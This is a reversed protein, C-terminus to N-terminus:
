ADIDDFISREMAKPHDTEWDNPEYDVPDKWKRSTEEIWRDVSAIENSILEVAVEDESFCDLLANLYDTTPQMHEEPSDNSDSDFSSIGKDSVSELDPLVETRVQTELTAIEQTTLLNRIMENNLASGDLGQITYNVVTKVFQMRHIEPLLGFEYLRAALHTESAFALYLGPRSVTELVNPNMDVYFELFERSCRRALFGLLAMQKMTSTWGSERRIDAQLEGLNAMLDPFLAKPLVVANELGVDGCTVRQIIQEPAAGALYINLLESNEVLLQAYADGITPHRFQWVYEGNNLTNEILSGRLAELALGIGRPDSGLRDLAQRESSEFKVPSLLRGSRMYILALAAKSDVDLGEIVETLFQNQRELFLDLSRKDIALRQTFIPNSLRRATEPTFHDNLAVDELFPKIKSRFAPPQPGLKMHNYLIRRREETTLSQVDIVVQSENFLPFASFKLEKRARRYIYDRSTMVIRAGRNLMASLRPLHHNWSQVLAGDYQTVGFADDLWYFQSPENPNWHEAVAKPDDLKLLSARWQDLATMALLSAITTKGAAPAGTLLVFRHNSLAEAARSYADTIVVKSLDERMSEIIAQAQVYAREDLIQGLDGLGYIRPFQMRLKQSARIQQVIWDSGLVSVTRVGALRLRNAIGEELRGSIGANTMLIYTDCCGRSVLAEAKKFEDSLDAIKLVKNPKSTFKCQIVFQGSHVEQGQERWNGSFAGDRGGDNSDLFSEVTQGLIEWCIMLCM